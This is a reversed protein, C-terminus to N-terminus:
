LSLDTSPARDQDDDDADLIATMNIRERREAYSISQFPKGLTGRTYAAFTSNHVLWHIAEKSNKGAFSHDYWSEAGNIACAVNIACDFEEAPDIPDTADDYEKAIEIGEVVGLIIAVLAEKEAKMLRNRLADKKKSDM